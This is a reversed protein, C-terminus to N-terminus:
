RGEFRIGTRVRSAVPRGDREAPHFSWRSMIWDRATQDLEERGGSKLISVCRPRGDADVEILVIVEGRYHGARMSPPYPPPPAHRYRPPTDPAEPTGAPASSTTGASTNRPRASATGGTSRRKNEPATNKAPTANAVRSASLPAGSAPHPERSAPPPEIPAPHPERSAFKTETPAPALTLLSDQASESLPLPETDTLASIHEAVPLEPCSLHPPIGAARHPALSLQSASPEAPPPTPAEPSSHIRHAASSPASTPASPAGSPARFTDRNPNEANGSPAQAASTVTHPAYTAYAALATRNRIASDGNQTTKEGRPLLRGGSLLLAAILPLLALSLSAARRLQRVRERYLQAPRIRSFRFFRSM